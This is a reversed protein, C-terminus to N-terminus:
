RGIGFKLGLSLIPYLRTYKELEDMVEAAETNLDQQLTQNGAASGNATLRLSPDGLFAVGLDLVLGIGPTFQRGLGLGVYPAASSTEFVGTLRGIEAATYENDGITISGSSSGTYDALLETEQAGFLIGATLRLPGVLNYDLGVTIIPGPLKVTYDVESITGEPDVPFFGGGARVAFKGFGYAADVGAGLTGGRVAVGFQANAEAAGGLLAAVVATLVFKKM